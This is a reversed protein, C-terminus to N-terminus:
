GEEAPAAEEEKPKEEEEEGEKKEPEAPSEEPAVLQTDASAAAQAERAKQLAAVEERLKRLEAAVENPAKTGDAEEAMKAEYLLRQQRITEAFIRYAPDNFFQESKMGRLIHVNIIYTRIPEANASALLIAYEGIAQANVAEAFEIDKQIEADM